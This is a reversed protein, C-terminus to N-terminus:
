KPKGAEPSGLLYAQYHQMIDVVDKPGLKGSTISAALAPCDAVIPLMAAKFAEKQTPLLQPSAPPRQVFFRAPLHPESVLQLVRVGRQYFLSELFEPPTDQPRGPLSGAVVFTDPALVFQRVGTTTLKVIGTENKLALKTASFVMKTAPHWTGDLLQYSGDGANRNPTAAHHSPAAPYNYVRTAPNIVPPLPTYNHLPAYHIQGQSLRALLLTSTLLLLKQM